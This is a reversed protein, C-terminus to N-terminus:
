GGGSRARGTPEMRAALLAAGLAGVSQPEAPVTLELGLKESLLERLCPNLAGGGAFVARAQPRLRRCMAAIRTAVAEHLALAIAASDEGRAILSVVESEAFVTCLSNIRVATQASLALPGFDAMPAELTAAMVELFKGTGPPACRDNMEFAEVDGSGSLRVVKSDQGGVDIVTRCDPYLYRAGAAFTRIETVPEGGLAPAVLHRGYGTVVLRDHRREGLLDLCRRLSNVGADVLASRPAGFGPEQLYIARGGHCRRVMSMRSGHRSGHSLGYSLLVLRSGLPTVGAQVLEWLMHAFSVCAAASATDKHTILARLAPDTWLEPTGAKLHPIVVPAIHM